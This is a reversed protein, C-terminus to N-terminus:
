RDPTTSPQAALLPAFERVAELTPHSPRWDLRRKVGALDARSRTPEPEPAYEVPSKSEALGLGERVADVVAGVPVAEGAACNYVGSAVGRGTAAVFCTVVDRVSVLDRVADKHPLAVRDGATLARAIRTPLSAGPGAREGPGFVEAVRLGVVQAPPAGADRSALAQRHLNEMVWKSFGRTTVPAGAAREAVPKGDATTLADGYVEGSSAYVLPVSLEAAAYLLGRFGEVNDWLLQKETPAEHAGALHFVAAPEIDELFENWEVDVCNDTLFDGPYAPVHARRCADVLNTWAGTRCDDVVLIDAGTDSALLHAALNAGIFGAGGTIIVPGRFLPM